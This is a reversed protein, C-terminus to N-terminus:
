IACRWPGSCARRPRCCPRRGLGGAGALVGGKGDGLAVWLKGEAPLIVDNQGDGDTDAFQASVPEVGPPLPLFVPPQDNILTSKKDARCTPWLALERREVLTLALTPCPDVGLRGFSPPFIADDPELEGLPAIVSVSNLGSVGGLNALSAEGQTFLIGLFEDGGKSSDADVPFLRLDLADPIEGTPYALPELIRGQQGLLASFGDGHSFLLDVRHDGNIDDLQLSSVLVPLSFVARENVLSSFVLRAARRGQSDYDTLALVDNIGDGDFDGSDLREHLLNLPEGEEEFRSSPTRCVGDLGCGLGAPCQLRTQPAAGGSGQPESEQTAGTAQPECVWRCPHPSGPPACRTGEGADFTDCDEGAEITVNGCVGAPRDPLSECGTVVVLALALALASRKHGRHTNM